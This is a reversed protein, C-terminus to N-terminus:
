LLVPETVIPRLQFVLLAFLLVIVSVIACELFDKVDAVIYYDNDRILLQEYRSMM